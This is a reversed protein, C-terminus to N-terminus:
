PVASKNRIRANHALCEPCGFHQLGADLPQTTPMMSVTDMPFIAPAVIAGSDAGRLMQGAHWPPYFCSALLIGTRLTKESYLPLHMARRATGGVTKKKIASPPMRYGDWYKWQKFRFGPLPLRQVLRLTNRFSKKRNLILM